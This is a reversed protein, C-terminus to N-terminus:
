DHAVSRGSIPFLAIDGWNPFLDSVGSELERKLRANLGLNDQNERLYDFFATENFYPNRDKMERAIALFSDNSRMNKAIDEAFRRSMAEHKDFPMDGWNQNKRIESKISESRPYAILAASGPSLGFGASGADILNGDKDYQPSINGQQLTKYFEDLNGTEAFVKQASKLRKINEIKKSPQIKDSLDRGSIGKLISKQEALNKGIRIWKEAATKETLNPNTALDNRMAKKLNLLSDGTLDSYIQNGEKQLITALQKDFELDAKDEVGERRERVDREIAPRSLDRQEDALAYNRADQLSLHPDRDLYYGIRDDLQQPTWPQSPEYKKSYPNDTVGGPLAQAQSEENTYDSPLNPQGRRSPRNENINGFKVNDLDTGSPPKQVSTAEDIKGRGGKGYVSRINQQKALEGFTQILQPNESAGPISLLATYQQMPSMNPANQVFQNLGKSLRYRDVEKPVQSALGAGVQEGLRGFVNGQKVQYSM